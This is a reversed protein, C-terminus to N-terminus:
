PKKSTKPPPEHTAAAAPAKAAQTQAPTQSLLKQLAASDEKSLRGAAKQPEASVEALITGLDAANATMRHQVRSKVLPFLASALLGLTRSDTRIFLDVRAAIGSGKPSTSLVLAMKGKFSPVLKHNLNGIGVWVRRNGAQEVPYLDGQIGTPDDVHIANGRMRVKYRPTFDHTEWLRAVLIPSQLMAEVVAPRANIEYNATLAVDPKKQLLQADAQLDAGFLTTAAAAFICIFTATRLFSRELCIEQIRSIARM